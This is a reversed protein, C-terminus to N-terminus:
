SGSHSHGCAVSEPREEVVGECWRLRRPLMSTLRGPSCCTACRTTSGTRTPHIPNSRTPLARSCANTTRRGKPSGRKQLSEKIIMLVSGIYSINVASALAGLAWTVSAGWPHARSSSVILLSRSAGHSRDGTRTAWIDLYFLMTRCLYSTTFRVFNVVAACVAEARTCKATQATSSAVCLATTVRTGSANTAM